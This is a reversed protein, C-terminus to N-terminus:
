LRAYYILDLFHRHDGESKEDRQLEKIVGALRMRTEPLRDTGRGHAVLYESGQEDDRVEYVDYQDMIPIMMMNSVGGTQIPIMM